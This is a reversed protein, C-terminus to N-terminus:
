RWTEELANDPASYYIPGMKYPWDKLNGQRVLQSKQTGCRQTNSRGGLILLLWEKESGFFVMALAQMFCHRCLFLVSSLRLINEKQMKM